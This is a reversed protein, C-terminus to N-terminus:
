LLEDFKKSSNSKIDEKKDKDIDTKYIKKLEKEIIDGKNPIVENIPQEIIPEIKKTKDSSNFIKNVLVEGSKRGLPEAASKVASEVANKAIKKTSESAIKNTASNFM